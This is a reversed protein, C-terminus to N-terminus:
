KGGFGRFQSSDKAFPLHGIYTQQILWYVFSGSFAQNTFCLTKNIDGM